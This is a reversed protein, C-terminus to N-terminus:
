FHFPDHVTFDTAKQVSARFGVTPLVLLVGSIGKRFRLCQLAEETENVKDTSPVTGQQLVVHLSQLEQAKMAIFKLFEFEDQDGRFKHIVMKKVHSILCEVPSVEQWFRAHHHEGSSENATESLTSQHEGSTENATVSPDRLTSEIHLTDISPFCRLFSTLMNLESLVGFNVTVALIKVSPIVTSASAMTNPEIVIDRIQLRHVRTDLHGLVRLNAPCGINVMVGNDPLFLVLRELLPADVATFDQVRSLGVLACRLSGSRLRVRRPRGSNLQLTELVPCATILHELDEDSIVVTLLTLSRLHPLSINGGRSLDAPLTWYGLLLEELSGCRLVDATILPFTNPQDPNFGNVLHLKQTHKDALVLPWDPLGGDLTDLRCDTLRVSHFHGPHKALVRPVLADRGPGPVPLDDDNLVLPTSSWLHRWRKALFVTRVAETVPLRTIIKHPPPGQRRGHLPPRRRRGHHRPSPKITSKPRFPSSHESSSSHARQLWVSLVLVSQIWSIRRVFVEM